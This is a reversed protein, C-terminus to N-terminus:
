DKCDLYCHVPANSLAKVIGPGVKAVSSVYSCYLLIQFNKFLDYMDQRLFVSLGMPRGHSSKVHATGHTVRPFSYRLYVRPDSM